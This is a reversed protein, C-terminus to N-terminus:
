KHLGSLEPNNLGCVIEDTGVSNSFGWVDEDEFESATEDDEV